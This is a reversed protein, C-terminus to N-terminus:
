ALERGNRGGGVGAYPMGPDWDKPRGPQEHEIPLRVAGGVRASEYAAEVIELAALSSEPVAYDRESGHIQQALYELHRQHNSVEFQPVDMRVRDHGPTVLTYFPEFGGFEIYGHDGIIRFLCVTDNRAIPVYDGTHLLARVGSATRAMTIADTEVQMGDRYTRTSKDAAALVFEVPEGGTLSVFFQLWHIGANIIDWGTCEMEVVRLQGIDGSTVRRIVELGGAQAMMGHPVVVPLGQGKILRLIEHGAATTDGLPKEVLLGKVGPLQLAAKTLPLHTPAYTSICVVETPSARFLEEASSYTTVDPALEHVRRRAADSLDAVAVLDFDESALLANISLMGGAGAGIVAATLPAHDGM